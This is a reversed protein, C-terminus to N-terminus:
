TKEGGGLDCKQRNLWAYCNHFFFLIPNQILWVLDKMKFIFYFGLSPFVSAPSWVVATRYISSFLFQHFFSSFYAFSWLGIQCHARIKKNGNKLKFHKLCVHTHM